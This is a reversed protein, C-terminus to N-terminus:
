TATAPARRRLAESRYEWVAARPGRRLDPTPPTCWSSRRGNRWGRHSGDRPRCPRGLHFAASIDPVRPNNWSAPKILHIHRNVDCVAGRANVADNTIGDGLHFRRADEVLSKARQALIRHHDRQLGLRPIEVRAHAPELREDVEVANKHGKRVLVAHNGM